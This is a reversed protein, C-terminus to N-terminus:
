KLKIVVNDDDPGSNYLLPEIFESLTYGGLLKKINIPLRSLFKEIKKVSGMMIKYEVTDPYLSANGRYLNAVIEFILDVLKKDKVDAYDNENMNHYKRSFKATKAYTLGNLKRGMFM